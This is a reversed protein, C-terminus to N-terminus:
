EPFTWGVGSFYFRGDLFGDILKCVAAKTGQAYGSRILFILPLKNAHQWHEIRRALLGFCGDRAGPLHPHFDLHDGAVLQGNGLFCGALQPHARVDKIGGPQAIRLILLRRLQRLGDFFRVAEGLYEGFVFVVNDVDQLFVAVYDTHSAISHVVGGRQLFRVAADRNGARGVRSTRRCGDHQQREPRDTIMSAIM